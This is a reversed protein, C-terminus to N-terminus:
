SRAPATIGELGHAEVAALLPDISKEQIQHPPNWKYWAFEGHETTTVDADAPVRALFVVLTKNVEENNFRAYRAPYSHAFRFGADFVLDTRPIGTEEEAERVATEHETEDGEQHGKPLDLREPHVLLLFEWEPNQRFMLVGCSKVERM